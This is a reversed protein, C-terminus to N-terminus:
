FDGTLLYTLHLKSNYGVSMCIHLKLRHNVMTCSLMLQLSKYQLLLIKIVGVSTFLLPKSVTTCDFNLVSFTCNTLIRSSFVYMLHLNCMCSSAVIERTLVSDHLQANAHIIPIMDDNLPFEGSVVNTNFMM